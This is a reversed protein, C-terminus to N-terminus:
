KSAKRTIAGVIDNMTKESIAFFNAAQKQLDGIRNASLAADYQKNSSVFVTKDGFMSPQVTVTFLGDPEAYTLTVSSRISNGSPFGIEQGAIANALASKVNSSDTDLHCQMNLGYAGISIDSLKEFVRTTIALMREWNEKASTQIAWKEALCSINLPPNGISFQSVFPTSLLNAAVAAKLEADNIIEHTRYWEPHHIQPNMTGVVVVAYLSRPISPADSM